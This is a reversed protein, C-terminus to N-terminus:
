RHRWLATVAFLLGYGSLFMLSFWLSYPMVVTEPWLCVGVTVVLGQVCSYYRPLGRLGWVPAVTLLLMLGLYFFGFGTEMVTYPVGLSWLLLGGLLPLLLYVLVAGSLLYEYPSPQMRQGLAHWLAVWSGRSAVLLHLARDLLLIGWQLLFLLYFAKWPVVPWPM